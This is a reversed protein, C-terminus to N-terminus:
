VRRVGWFVSFPSRVFGTLNDRYAAPQFYQAVPVFPVSDFAERQVDQAIRARESDSNAELWAVRLAERKDSSAWGIWGGRGAASLPFSLPNAIPLGSWQVPLCSWGGQEVPEQKTRRAVMTALDMTEARVNLGLRKFLDAGVQAVASLGPVDSPELVVVPEGAYGSAAILEKARAMNRPARLTEMGVDSASPSGLPFFGVGVRGLSKEDGVIAQVFESQDVAALLARRLKVNNFPPQLQNMVLMYVTGMPDINEVAVGRMKRLSPVLDLLPQEVWDVEGQRLAAIATAPDPQVVWQVRDFHVVKGGSYFEPPEERPVYKEFRAYESKVGSVWQDAIFRYPGSGIFETIAKSSPASSIREPMMFCSTAGFGYLLQPFPQKLRVQFRRNDLVSFENL